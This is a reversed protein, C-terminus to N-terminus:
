RDDRVDYDCHGETTKTPRDRVLESSQRRYEDGCGVCPQAGYTIGFIGGPMLLLAGRISFKGVDLYRRDWSPVAGHFTSALVFFCAFGDSSLQTKNLGLIHLLFRNGECSSGFHFYGVDM